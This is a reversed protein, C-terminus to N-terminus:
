CCRPCARREDGRGSPMGDAIEVRLPLQKAAALSETASVVTQVIDQM